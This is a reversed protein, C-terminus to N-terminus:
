QDIAGKWDDTKFPSAPLGEKNSLNPNVTEHWGFRVNKPETVNEASVIVTHGDIIAKASVFEGNPGSIMFDTLDKGDRSTLGTGTHAFNIRIKDGEVKMSKYLPGSYVSKEKGYDKALSWLALRKGVDQKNRPHIDQTNGIDTIIAMGTGPVALTAAQAEWINPLSDARNYRYPALQVFHFSLDKNNFVHRWGAILARMKDHYLMGEGVNSEGQYWIAGKVAYPVVPAIMGNYLGTPNGHNLKPVQPPSPIRRGNQVANKVADAWRQARDVILDLDSFRRVKDAISRLNDVSDFGPIPTWPEIRTGGWATGVLGIPVNLESQLHRGFYYAVASFNAVSEPSCEKWSANCDKEPFTSAKKPIHFLRIKPYKANAIEEGPNNSGKVSWEMNSQGSCIWVEGFLVNDLIIQDQGSTIQIEHPGGAEMPDLRVTWKGDEAVKAVKRKNGILVSVENGPDDWGWIPVEVGRQLVMNSGIVKPLELRAHASLSFISFLIILTLNKTQM